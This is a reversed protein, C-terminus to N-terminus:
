QFRRQPMKGSARFRASQWEQGVRNRQHTISQDIFADKWIRHLM